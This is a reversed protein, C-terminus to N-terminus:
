IPKPYNNSNRAIMCPKVPWVSDFFFKLDAVYRKIAIDNFSKLSVAQNDDPDARYVTFEDM